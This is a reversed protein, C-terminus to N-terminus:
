GESANITANSRNKITELIKAMKIEAQELTHCTFANTGWEENSPVREKAEYHIKGFQTEKQKRIEFVEFGYIVGEDSQSFIAVDGSRKILAFDFTNKRYFDPLVKFASNESQTDNAHDLVEM